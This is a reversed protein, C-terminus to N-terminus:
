DETYEKALEKIKKSGGIILSVNNSNPSFKIYFTYAPCCVHEVSIFDLILSSYKERDSYVYELCDNYENIKVYEKFLIPMVKEIKAFQEKSIKFCTGLLSEDIKDWIFPSTLKNKKSHVINNGKNNKLTQGNCPFYLLSFLISTILFIRSM